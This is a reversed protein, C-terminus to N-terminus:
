IYYFSLLLCLLHLLSKIIIITQARTTTKQPDRGQLLMSDEFNTPNAYYHSYVLLLGPILQKITKKIPELKTKQQM